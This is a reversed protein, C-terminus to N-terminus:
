PFFQAVVTDLFRWGMATTVVRDNELRLLEREVMADLAPQLASAALGTRSEFLNMTFGDALRLANMVFEAAVDRQGPESSHATHEGAAAALYDDPQRRKAYRRVSNDGFSIKGHAGAGIALYDGFTWYNLNHRCHQGPQSYASVEYQGYGASELLSEGDTQITALIDEAPLIPRRKYFLTNPEITLQYWSIHPIGSDIALSIDRSARDQQQGPLGHMLDLNINAFGAARASAIAAMAQKGDHVRGLARLSDDDFSQVGLSLRNIGADRFGHFKETEASGPNAELTVEVDDALPLCGAIGALLTRISAASFLSPTGGGVFVTAIERGQALHRDAELDRLLADTYAAEPINDIEHSNFDCYPCKRECWPLHVYLGLPPLKM